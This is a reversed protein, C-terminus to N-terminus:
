APPQIIPAPHTSLSVDPESLAQPHSEGPSSVKEDQYLTPTRSLSDRLAKL